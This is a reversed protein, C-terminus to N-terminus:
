LVLRNEPLSLFEEKSHAKFYNDPDQGIPLAIYFFEIDSDYFKKPIAKQLKELLGKGAKDPDPVFVIKKVFRSLLCLQTFSFASGLMGVVNHIGAQYTQLVDVNGEVVYVKQDQLCKKWTVNLGYLHNAKEYVTNTYKPTGPM